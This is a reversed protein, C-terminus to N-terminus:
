QHCQHCGPDLARGPARPLRDNRRMPASNINRPGQAPTPFTSRETRAVQWGARMGLSTCKSLRFFGWGKFWIIGLCTWMPSTRDTRRWRLGRHHQSLPKMDRAGLIRFQLLHSTWPCVIQWVQSGRQRGPGMPRQCFNGSRGVPTDKESITRSSLSVVRDHRNRQLRGFRALVTMRPLSALLDYFSTWSATLSM